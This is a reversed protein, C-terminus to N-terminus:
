TGQKHPSGYGIVSKIVILTPRDDTILFTDIARAFADCDNADDVVLTMWGYGRFREAVDEDFALETHGEITVTNDDWFWCLNSLRLHGAISAAESAVGEMMDGDSCLAYVNFDFLKAEDRNYRAALWRSAIAMGVSNGAGQGLPGTTTEIGAALGHEPHGATPSGLQRFQKIDELTIAPRNQPKSDDGLARVGALHILAYLLMSGHGASLVFRDRNPWAPDAPDYRLFRKWLTYGVPAMAMPAGAHGSDAKEVADIALTRITDIALRDLDVARAKPREAADSITM